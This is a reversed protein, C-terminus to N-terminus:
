HVTRKIKHYKSYMDYGRMLAEEMDLDGERIYEGLYNFVVGTLYQLETMDFKIDADLPRILLYNDDMILYIDNGNLTIKSELM